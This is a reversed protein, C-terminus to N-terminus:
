YLEAMEANAIEPAIRFDTLSLNKRTDLIMGLPVQGFFSAWLSFSSPPGVIYDCGALAMMDAVPSGPALQFNFQSFQTWDQTTDSTLVFVVKGGFLCELRTMVSVYERTSFFFRGGLHTRYDSQRIHVGVVPRGLGRASSLTQGASELISPAPAFIRRLEHQYRDFADRDRLLWGQVLVFRCDKIADKMPPGNLHLREGDSARFASIWRSTPRGSQFRLAFWAAIRSGLLM